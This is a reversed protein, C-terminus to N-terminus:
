GRSQAWIAQVEGSLSEPDFPKTIVGSAGLGLYHEVEQTQVKATMFIVPVEALSPRQRLEQLTAPGDMGPMMVDLIILDPRFSEARELAEAGSGCSEVTFGGLVELALATVAQIDPEDDVHLIRTLETM